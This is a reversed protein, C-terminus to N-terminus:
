KTQVSKERLIKRNHHYNQNTEKFCPRVIDIACTTQFMIHVGLQNPLRLKRAKADLTSPNYAHAIM